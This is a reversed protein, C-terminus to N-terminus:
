MKRRLNKLKTNYINQPCGHYHYVKAGMFFLIDSTYPIMYYAKCSAQKENIYLFM